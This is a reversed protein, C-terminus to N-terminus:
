PGVFVSPLTIDSISTILRMTDTIAHHGWKTTKVPTVHHKHMGLATALAFDIRQFLIFDWTDTRGRKYPM